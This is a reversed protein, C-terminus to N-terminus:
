MMEEWTQDSWWVEKSADPNSKNAVSNDYWAKAQIKTGAPIKLPDRFV